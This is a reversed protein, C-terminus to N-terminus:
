RLGNVYDRIALPAYPSTFLFRIGAAYWGPTPELTYCVEGRATVCGGKPLVFSLDILDGVRYAQSTKMLMGGESIELATDFHLRNNCLSAVAMQIKCREHRRMELM